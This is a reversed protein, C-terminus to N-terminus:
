TILESDGDLVEEKKKKKLAHEVLKSNWMHLQAVNQETQVSLRMWVDNSIMLEVIVYIICTICHQLFSGRREIEILNRSFVFGTQVFILVFETFFLSLKRIAPIVGKGILCVTPQFKGFVLKTSLHVNSSIIDM